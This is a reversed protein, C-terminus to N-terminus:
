ALATTVISVSNNDLANHRQLVANTSLTTQTLDLLADGRVINHKVRLHNSLNGTATSSAFNAPTGVNGNLCEACVIFGDDHVDFHSWVWSIMKRKKRGRGDSPSSPANSNNVAGGSLVSASFGTEQTGSGARM